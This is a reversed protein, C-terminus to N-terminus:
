ESFYAARIMQIRPSDESQVYALIQEPTFAAFQEIEKDKLRFLVFRAKENGILSAVSEEAKKLLRKRKNLRYAGYVVLLLPIVKLPQFAFYADWSGMLLLFLDLLLLTSLLFVFWKSEISSQLIPGLRASLGKKSTKYAFIEEYKKEEFAMRAAHAMEHGILEDRHYLRLYREQHYFAKRLQLVAGLPGEKELQFIWASGGHWPLLKWNSFFLPVWDPRIDYLHETVTLAGELFAQGGDLRDAPLVDGNLQDKLGECFAVRRLFDVENEGPGPILGKKNWRVLESQNM